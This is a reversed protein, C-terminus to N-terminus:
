ETLKIKEFIILVDQKFPPISSYGKGIKHSLCELNKLDPFYVELNMADKGSNLKNVYVLVIDGVWLVV